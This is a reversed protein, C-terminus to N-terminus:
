IEKERLSLRHKKLRIDSLAQVLYKSDKALASKLMSSENSPIKIHLCVNEDELATFIEFLCWARQIPMPDNWPSLVLLVEGIERVGRFTTIFWDFDKSAVENQNNTFLDFWFYADPHEKAHQEMADVVVDYFSYRWAHSVFVTAPAVLPKGTKSDCLDLYKSIYPNGTGLSEPKM